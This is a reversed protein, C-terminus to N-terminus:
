TRAVARGGLLLRALFGICTARHPADRALDVNVPTDGLV